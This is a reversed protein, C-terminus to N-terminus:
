LDYTHLCDCRLMFDLGLRRVRDLVGLDPRTRAAGEAYRTSVAAAPSWLLPTTWVAAAAATGPRTRQRPPLPMQALSPMAMPVPPILPSVATPLRPLCKQPPTKQNTQPFKPNNNNNEQFLPHTTTSTNLNTTVQSPSHYFIVPAKINHLLPLLVTHARIITM